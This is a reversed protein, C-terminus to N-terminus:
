AEQGFPAAWQAVSLAVQEVQVTIEPYDRDFAHIFEDCVLLFSAIADTQKSTM